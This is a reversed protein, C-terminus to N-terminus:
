TRESLSSLILTQHRKVVSMKKIRFYNMTISVYNTYLKDM